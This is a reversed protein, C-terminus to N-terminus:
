DNARNDANIQWNYRTTNNGGWRNLPANLGTLASTSAHAVGYIDPSIPHRAASVDVNVTVAPNQALAAPAVMDALCAVFALIAYHFRVSM